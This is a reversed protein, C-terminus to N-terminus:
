IALMPELWNIPQSIGYQNEPAQKIQELAGSSRRIWHRGASDTFGVEVGFRLGM